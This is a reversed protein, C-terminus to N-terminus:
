IAAELNERVKTKLAPDLSVEAWHEFALIGQYFLMGLGNATKAGHQRATTLLLTERPNYVLDYVFLGPRLMEPDVLPPDNKKMGIPTANIFIDAGPIALDDLSNVVEIPGIDVQRDLDQLLMRAREGDIDYLRIKQPREPILCLVSIIARAAGGAGIVSVNKGATTVGLEALHSLFGPGDTNHGILQRDKSVVITNVAKIQQALPSLSDLYSLVREKYPVTVNLGFIPNSFDKLDKFFSDLEEEKLPFLKYTADLGLENFATNHIVPSLSHSLPYGILGYTSQM